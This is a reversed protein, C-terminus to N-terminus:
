RARARDQRHKVRVEGAKPEPCEEEVAFVADPGYHTVIFRTHMTMVDASQAVVIGVILPSLRAFVAIRHSARPYRRRM